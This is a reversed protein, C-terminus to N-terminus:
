AGGRARPVWFEVETGEGLRSEITTTGGLDSIRGRMSQAIGLRGAEAAEDMRQPAFGVGDDRVTVRVGDREDEVLVWARAAPGAHQQVNDLAARIAAVLEAAAAASLVVPQAPIIVEVAPTALAQLLGRLDQAADRGVGAAGGTLLSRLAVEQEGALEALRSGRDGLESGHRQVLALVQLVGDHIPRALRDREAAAAELRIQEAQKREARRTALLQAFGLSGIGAGAVPLLVAAINLHYGVSVSLTDTAQITQLGGATLVGVLPGLVVPLAGRPALVAATAGVTAAAAGGSLVLLLFGPVVAHQLALKEPDGTTAAYAILLAAATLVSLTAALPFRWRSGAIVAGLAAGALAAVWRVPDNLGLASVALNIPAV